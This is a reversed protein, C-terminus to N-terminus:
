DDDSIQVDRRTATLELAENPPMVKSIAAERPELYSQGISGVRPKPHAVRSSAVQIM